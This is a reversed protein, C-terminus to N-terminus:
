SGDDEKSNLSQAWTGLWPPTPYGQTLLPNRLHQSTLSSQKLRALLDRGGAVTKPAAAPERQKDQKQTTRCHPRSRGEEVHPEGSM